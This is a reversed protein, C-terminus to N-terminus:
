RREGHRRAHQRLQLNGHANNGKEARVRYLLPQGWYSRAEYVGVPWIIVLVLAFICYNDELPLSARDCNGSPRSRSSVAFGEGARFQQHRAPAARHGTRRAAPKKRASAPRGAAPHNLLSRCTRSTKRIRASKWIAARLTTVCRVWRPPTARNAAQAQWRFRGMSISWHPGTPVTATGIGVTGSITANGTVAEGTNTVTGAVQLATTPSTTGIGVNGSSNVTLRQTGGPSSRCRTAPPPTCVALRMAASKPTPPRSAEAM